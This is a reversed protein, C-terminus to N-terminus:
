GGYPNGFRGPRTRLFTGDDTTDPIDINQNTNLNVQSFQTNVTTTNLKKTFAGSLSFGGEAQDLDEDNIEEAGATIDTGDEIKDKDNM